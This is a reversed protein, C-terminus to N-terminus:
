KLDDLKFRRLVIGGANLYGMESLVVIEGDQFAAIDSYGGVEEGSYDYGKSWTAGDDTSVRLTNHWRREQWAPNCFLLVNKGNDGNGYSYTYLSGQCGPDPLEKVVQMQSWTEGGDKSISVGRYKEAEITGVAALRISMMLSGDSLECVTSENTGPTPVTGGHRWTEGGDDSIMSNSYYNGDTGTQYGVVVLRGKNAGKQIVIGHCPGQTYRKIGAPRVSATIDKVESWTQGENDSYTVLVKSDGYSDNMVLVVRNTEPLYIPCPNHITNKTDAGHIVILDQWTKCRDGSRRLVVDINGTDERGDVRGECFALTVDHKTIVIAPIRYFAYNDAGVTFVQSQAEATPVPKDSIVPDLDSCASTLLSAAAIIALYIKSKM